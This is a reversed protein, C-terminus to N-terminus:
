SFTERTAASRVSAIRLAVFAAVLLGLSAPLLGTALGPGYVQFNTTHTEVVARWVNLEDLVGALLGMGVAGWLIMTLQGVKGDKVSEVAVYGLGTLLAVCFGMTIVNMSFLLSLPAQCYANLWLAGGFVALGLVALAASLKKM